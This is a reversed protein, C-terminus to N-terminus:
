ENILNANERINKEKIIKNNSKNLININNEIKGKM